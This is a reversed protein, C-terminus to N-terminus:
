QSPNAFVVVTLVVVALFVAALFVLALLVVVFISGSLDVCRIYLSGRDMRVDMRSAGDLFPLLTCSPSCKWSCECVYVAVFDAPVRSVLNILGGPIFSPVKSTQHPFLGLNGVWTAVSSFSLM